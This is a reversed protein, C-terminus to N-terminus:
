ARGERPNEQHHKRERVRLTSRCIYMHPAYDLVRVREVEELTEPLTPPKCESTSLYYLHVLANPVTLQLAKDLFSVANHPLNMIITTFVQKLIQPLRAADLNLVLIPAKLRRSNAKASELVAKVAYPNIDNVVVIRTRRKASALLGFFGCGAFMDLVLEDDRLAEVVRLHETALRPNIYVKGWPVVFKLGYEHYILKDVNEGLLLTLRPIRTVEEVDHKAYVSRVRPHVLMIYSAVIEELGKVREDYSVIAVDGVLTYSSLGELSHSAPCEVEVLSGGLEDGINKLAQALKSEQRAAIVVSRRTVVVRYWGRLKLRLERVCSPLQYTHLVLALCRPM